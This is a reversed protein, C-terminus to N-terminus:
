NGAYLGVFVPENLIIKELGIIKLNRKETFRLLWNRFDYISDGGKWINEGGLYIVQRKFPM